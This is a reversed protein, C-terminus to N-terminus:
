NFKVKYLNEHFNFHKTVIKVKEHLKCTSIIGELSGRRWIRCESNIVKMRLTDILHSSNFLHAGQSNPLAKFWCHCQTVMDHSIQYFQRRLM